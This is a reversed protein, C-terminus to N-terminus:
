IYLEAIKQGYKRKRKKKKRRQKLYISHKEYIQKLLQQPKNIIKSTAKLNINYKKKKKVQWLRADLSLAGSETHYLFSGVICKQKEGGIKTSNNEYM